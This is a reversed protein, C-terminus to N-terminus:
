TGEIKVMARTMWHRRVDALFLALTTGGPVKTGWPSQLLADWYAITSNGSKLAGLMAAMNGQRLTSATADLGDQYNAYNKVGTSNFDTSEPMVKTTALPNFRAMSGEAQAQAILSTTNALTGPANVALLLDRVWLHRSTSV